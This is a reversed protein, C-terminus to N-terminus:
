YDYDTNKFIPQCIARYASGSYLIEIAAHMTQNKYICYHGEPCSCKYFISNLDTRVHGCFDYTDCKKLPHCRYEKKYKTTGNIKDNTKSARLFKWYNEETCM